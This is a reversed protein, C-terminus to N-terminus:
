YTKIVRFSEVADIQAKPFYIQLEKDWQLRQLGFQSFFSTKTGKNASQQSMLEFIKQQLGISDRKMNLSPMDLQVFSIQPHAAAFGSIGKFVYQAYDPQNQASCNKIVLLKRVKASVSLVSKLDLDDCSEWILHDVKLKRFSDASVQSKSGIHYLVKSDWIGLNFHPKRKQIGALSKFIGSRVEPMLVLYDFSAVLSNEEFTNKSELFSFFRKEQSFLQTLQNLQDYNKSELDKFEAVTASKLITPFKRILNYKEKPSLDSYAGWWQHALYAPLGGFSLEKDISWVKVVFDALSNLALDNAAFFKQNITKLYNKAIEVELQQTSKLNQEWILISRGQLQTVVPNKSLQVAIKPAKIKWNLILWSEFPLIKSELIQQNKVFTVSYPVKKRIACRYVVSADAMTIKEISQSNICLPKQGAQALMLIVFVSLTLYASGVFKSTM